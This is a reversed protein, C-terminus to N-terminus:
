SPFILPVFRPDEGFIRQKVRHAILQIQGIQPLTARVGSWVRHWVRDVNHPGDREAVEDMYLKIANMAWASHGASVNDAANHVDVFLTPYRFARLTDRAEMYPGGVGALEVALNLGLIEPLFHRPFCSISLWFAPVEFSADHLREWRAFEWSDVAPATIGMAELLNRYINAHHQEARGEGIEEVFVHFLMRGVTTHILSSSATGQLWGGDILILPALQLNAEIFVEKPVKPRHGPPRYSDIQERHKAFVWQELAAPDYRRSPIARAGNVLSAMSRELHDRAYHEAVPLIDPYHEINVLYHYLERVSCKGYLVKSRRQLEDPDWYRGELYLEKSPARAALLPPKESGILRPGSKIDAAPLSDIWNAIVQQEAPSFVGSMPGGYEILRRLLASKDARGAKVWPSESLADLLTNGDFREPDLYDDIKRSGLSRNAHYGCAHPAKQRLLDIMQLRPNPAGSPASDNVANIWETLAEVGAGVGRLLKAWTEGLADANAVHLLTVAAALAIERGKEHYELDLLGTGLPPFDYAECVDRILHPGLASLDLYQWALNVGVIEAFFTRAFQGISLLFIPLAFSAETFDSREAFTFSSVEELRPGVRSQIARYDAVFHRGTDGVFARLQHQYLGTLAAGIKTHATSVRPGSQLWCGDVLAAPMYQSFYHVLRPRKLDGTALKWPEAFEGRRAALLETLKPLRDTVDAVSAAPSSLTGWDIRISNLRREVADYALPLIQPHEEINILYYYAKRFSLRKQGPPFPGSGNNFSLAPSDIKSAHM